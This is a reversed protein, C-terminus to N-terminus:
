QCAYITCLWRYTWRFFEGATDTGSIVPVIWEMSCPGYEKSLPSKLLKCWALFNYFICAVDNNEVWLRM